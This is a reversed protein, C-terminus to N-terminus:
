RLTVTRQTYRAGTFAAAVTFRVAAPKRAQLAKRVKASPKVTITVTGGKACKVARRALVRSKLGLRKATAKSARLDVYGTGATECTVKVKVGSAAFRAPSPHTVAELSAAPAAAPAITKPAPAALAATVTVTVTASGALAGPDRVTVTANYTGAAAYTHTATPGGAKVGDGFDWEYAIQDGDPDRGDASFNVKLPATGSGPDATAQVTPAQNGAPNGVVIQVTDTDTLGSPDKATVKATYTGNGTYVHRARRGTATNGDGFDWAYTLADGDPDTGDATFAVDLPAKGSAPAAAALVSPPRNGVPDTVTIAVNRSASKGGADTVTVKAAYTGKTLYRHDAEDGFATGGDGFEWRYSLDGQGGDDSAVAYLWVDLPAPGTTRDAGAEIIVPAANEGGTAPTVTITVSDTASKGTPDTAKVTAVHTGPTAFTRTVSAGYAKGDSFTWEYTLAGNEPDLGSATLNVQLPATGSTPDAYANVTPPQGSTTNGCDPDQVAGASVEIGGLIHDLFDTESFSETTHGMGTYWSRGGDYRHCWSIPHDDDTTNGDQEDYTSEDVTALVHVDPRPSFDGDPVNPDAFLPSRYNYWEDVRQWPNPIGQTSRHDTDEVDVKASPTGPPHSLFFAGVLKGYWVWDYETDAAAHIGTFGGGARIYREFAAQQTDNLPDGTTSLWVVTDYHSLVDDRFLAADESADVQFGHLNGLQKISAIGAPISDHRFGTTKSFALVRFRKAGDDPALVTVPITRTTDLEGDSVTLKANYTGAATYTHSPDEQTSDEDGEGDFDWSYTLADEDADTATVAFQVPLPAFGSSPTATASSIAPAANELPCGTSGNVKLYDFTLVRGAIQVGTQFIGFKPAAMTNAVTQPMATWTSGNFSYEGKYTTGAKTLRLWVDTTGAPVDVQPQPNQVKAGIESRLEIRNVATRDQDSIPDLKVYNDDDVYAILGGQGYGGNLQSVNMKTELVWDSAAHDASQLLVNKIASSDAGGYLDGLTTTLHLKGGETKVLTPDPRVIANFKTTNLAAGDFEDGPGTCECEGGPADAGDLTFYDFSVTDGVGAAQPGFAFLGFSPTAMANTTSSAVATWTTGNFSYEGSYTQGAKKLRLWINQTGEPVLPDAPTPSVIAGGVESRLELRNIRQNGTDSIADFKVYNAGDVYAMLGGQAYGDSITASLKTELTWDAGAHDASQLIFNPPPPNTDGTYIDGLETTITLNGGSVAYKAPNDRAIANWRTKDLASGDFQDDRSPGAPPGGVAPGDLRFWDFDAVPSTAAANSFSFVGLKAGAPLPAARGVPTWTTGNTSYAGTVNTGDSVMRLYYDKPFDAPLNATSDPADNRPTGNTELIFEFKETGAGDTAIRGFKVFNGDDTYALLGAQQWQANGEFAVKTTATWAGTPAARVVLNKADNQGGYIDGPAAPIHLAGGGVTMAEDRRVVEWPPTAVDTGNFEDLVTGGGGGGGGSGGDPDFRIWDFYALPKSPAQDSLATPGIQPNAFTSLPAPQGVPTFTDGDFSYAATLQTGDSHIRVYYSLPADAPLPGSNDAAGNRPQGNAEYIFEFLRNGGASIMHVSAWNDDDSWVRLGAQQYNEDLAAVQVKSTVTWTGSPVPQTIVNKASTGTQYMSGNDIPLELRGNRVQFNDLSRQVTWRDLDLATGDFEDSKANQPCQSPAGTVRVEVSATSKAGKPDTVTVKAAYTGPNAYTYTPDELTSTDDNTGTVGFDWKYTLAEGEPDTATANFAVNLPAQGTAPTATASVEPPASVAAGKGRVQFWNLNFLGGSTPTNTFVLFLEHTGAPKSALPIDVNAWTQWSGTPTVTAEAFTAATPSDARLEIKGGAGGSAVRFRISDIDTFNVRAFSVYDGHEIFGIDNGGGADATPEKTVGPDGDAAGGAIRGTSTFHEARKRRTHIVADDQGTLAQASGAGKDTYTAVISTFINANPDHGADALTDFTGECGQKAGLGHAHSDHGLQISLTVRQCDITGDEPDTVVIKYPVTDGFDAFQGDEPIQIEVTPRTNGAVVAVTDVGTMSAQDTVTLRVNYNGATTYTHSPDAATSDTTGNGDFDWAYTLSTGEPDVSGASSFQVTLPTPGADPTAAAHAIPRRAGKLYDIRFIGSDLNNGNFGGGWDIVYLSGDPGFEMDMPRKFTTMWPTPDVSTVTNAANLTATKIWGNNWEGIFWQGDYFAPFKTDSVLDAKYDYRPGGTPAGGTGLGPNRADTETYGMWMTAPKAPPLNTLGTNNPSTNVPAACNFKPGSVGTAFDYDNYPVNDRVCYPWGYNGPTVVNYEVSGQPGRNPNTSGADPGYDGMLVNGTKPDITIRFPNRFGMAFIEPLTKNDTDQAEPFLNGSPITYGTGVGPGTPNALPVFRLIKGSYSNTNASTRQADWFARGPREDIPDYGDSAFPNTNDGTSLYLSGDLGFALSGSSHCCETRQNDYSLIVRESPMDLQDGTVTFRSVRTETSANPLPTYTVYLWHNTAFNPDLAIGMLGNEQVSSVPITGATLVQGDPKIVNVEGTIREVYFVRGDKAAALEMPSQTDDDLSVVEFDGASPPAQRQPGCDANVVGAATRIGGLIHARFEPESFSAQTHGGGTYWARGGDYNSCWAIPHDDAEPSDDVEDYTSEDLTALVHVGSTRPSYDPIGPQNGGVVPNNPKQFNYWEDTRVWSAPLGTTSPEDGDEIKTTATPTGAPHNRFYAGVMQGYWPWTYETDSAAHIGAYGKGSQIFREFAAQQTADLVDGTTSLFIVVDYQALNADTFKTSDETADVAFGNAAGLAQIAAIGQPISDHRFGATKSFVLVKDLTNTPAAVTVSGTMGSHIKCLFTYTGANDFRREIAAGNPPRSEDTSWNTSSSTVTHTTAAQDFEWRVTDGADITVSPPQFVPGSSAPDVADIVVTDAYAAGAGVACVVLVTVLAVFASLSRM